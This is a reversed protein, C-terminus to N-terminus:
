RAQAEVSRAKEELEKRIRADPDLSLARAFVDRARVLDGRAEYVVGLHLLIEPEGPALRDARELTSTAEDLKGQRFLLWGLSDLVQGDDPQLHVARRLMQEARDLHIGRSAYSYGVFNLALVNDPDRELLPRMFAVAQDPSGKRDELEARAHRLQEDEPWRKLASDLLSRAQVHDGDREILWARSIILSPHDPSRVLAAEVLALGEASKGERGLLFAALAAAEPHEVSIRPISLCAAIAEPRRRVQILARAELLRAAHYSPDRTRAEIAVRLASEAQFVTLYLYGIDVQARVSRFGQDVSSLFELASARDGEALLALVLRHAVDMDGGSRDFASRLTGTAKDHKGTRRYVDALAIRANLHDPALWTARVLHNEAEDFAGRAVLTAALRFQGEASLPRHEILKRFLKEAQSLQGLQERASAAQLYADERLPDLAVATEFAAAAASLDGQRLHINGRLHWALPERPWRALIAECHLRADHLRGSAMLEEAIAVRPEVEDPAFAATRQFQLLAEDHRGEISAKRARIYHEYASPHIRLPAVPVDPRGRGVCGVCGAVLLVLLRCDVRM